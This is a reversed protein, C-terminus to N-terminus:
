DDPEYKLWIVALFCLGLLSASAPRTWIPLGFQGPHFFRADLLAGGVLLVTTLWGQWGRPGIGYGYRKPGFWGAV